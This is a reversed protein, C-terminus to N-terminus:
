QESLKLTIEYKTDTNILDILKLLRSQLDEGEYIGALNIKFGEPVPEFVTTVIPEPKPVEKLELKPKPKPTTREQVTDYEKWLKNLAYGSINWHAQLDVNRHYKHALKMLNTAEDKPMNKIVELQPINSLIEYMNYIRVESALEKLKKEQQYPTLYDLTPFYIVRPKKKSVM